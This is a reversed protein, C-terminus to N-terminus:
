LNKLFFFDFIKVSRTSAMLTALIIDTAFVNGIGKQALQEIIPDESFRM